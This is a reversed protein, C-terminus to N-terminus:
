ACANLWHSHVNFLGIHVPLSIPSIIIIVLNYPFSMITLVYEKEM